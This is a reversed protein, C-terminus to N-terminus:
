CGELQLCCSAGVCSQELQAAPKHWCVVGCPWGGAEGNLSAWVSNEPNQLLWLPQLVLVAKVTVLCHRTSDRDCLSTRCIDSCALLPCRTPTLAAAPPTLPPM